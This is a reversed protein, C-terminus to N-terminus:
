DSLLAYKDCNEIIQWLKLLMSLRNILSWNSIYITEKSESSCLPCLIEMYTTQAEALEILDSNTSLLFTSEKNDNNSDYTCNLM